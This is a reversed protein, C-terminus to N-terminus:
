VYILQRWCDIHHYRVVPLTDMAKVQSELTKIVYIRQLVSRIACAVAVNRGVEGVLLASPTKILGVHTRSLIYGVFLTSDISFWRRNSIEQVVFRYQLFFVISQTDQIDFLVCMLRLFRFGNIFSNLLRFLWVLQELGVVSGSLTTPARRTYLLFTSLCKPYPPGVGSVSLDEPTRKIILVM